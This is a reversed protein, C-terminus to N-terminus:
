RGKQRDAVIEVGLTVLCTLLERRQRFIPEFIKGTIDEVLQASPIGLKLFLSHTTWRDRRSIAPALVCICRLVEELVRGSSDDM